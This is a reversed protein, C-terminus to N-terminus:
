LPYRADGPERGDITLARVGPLLTGAPVYSLAGPLKAVVRQLLPEPSASRPPLANGRIRQDIWYKATEDPSFGLLNHDFRVRAAAGVPHNLPIISRGQPDLQARGLFIRRLADASIDRMPSSAAVIPVLPADAVSHAARLLLAGLLLGAFALTFSTARM